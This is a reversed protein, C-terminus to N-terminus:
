TPRGGDLLDAGRSVIDGRAWELLHVVERRLLAVRMDAPHIAIRAPVLARAHKAARCFAVTAALRAPSRSAWNLVVSARARRGAPDYVRFHDETFGYGRVRLLPLLWRPRWWAPPVFGDIRLGADRLVREGQEIRKRGEEPSVDSMEAEGGSVVRQAFLWSLRSPWHLGDRYREGSRHFFGHLYVEHGVGQLRRLRDCFPADDLLPARGHFNPVVLLAPRAGSAACLDLAAEVEDSWLPSVDHISVHVAVQKAGTL